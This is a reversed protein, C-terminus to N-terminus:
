KKEKKKMEKFCEDCFVFIKGNNIRVKIGDRRLDTPTPKLNAYHNLGYGCVDCSVEYWKKIM